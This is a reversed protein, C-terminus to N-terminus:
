TPQARNHLRPTKSQIAHQLNTYEPTRRVLTRLREGLTHAQALVYLEVPKASDNAASRGLVCTWHRSSRGNSTTGPINNSTNACVHPDGMHKTIIISVMKATLSRQGRLASAKHTQVASGCLDLLTSLGKTLVMSAHGRRLSSMALDMSAHDRRLSSVGRMHSLCSACISFHM